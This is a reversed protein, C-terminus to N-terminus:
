PNIRITGPVLVEGDAIDVNHLCCHSGIICRRGIRTRGTFSCHAGIDTDAGIHVDDELYCTDPLHFSVGEVMLAERRQQMLWQEIAALQSRQNVGNFSQYNSTQYVFAAQGQEAAMQFCDTLYYEQQANDNSLNQLCQFLYSRKAFIVGSNCLTIQKTATDADKEEVIKQLRQQKDLILRGYGTPQPHIMGIVGLTAQASQCQIVFDQLVQPDLAPTDGACILVFDHNLPEGSWLSGASYSPVSEGIFGCAAAAVADGTGLRKHQIVATLQKKLLDSFASTEESLVLCSRNIGAQDLIRLIRSLMPKGCVRHLVKPIDSKMRTGKGAALVIAATNASIPRSEM